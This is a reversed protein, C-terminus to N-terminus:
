VPITEAPAWPCPERSPAMISLLPGNHYLLSTIIVSTHFKWFQELMPVCNEKPLTEQLGKFQEKLAEAM